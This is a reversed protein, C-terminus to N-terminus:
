NASRNANAGRVQPRKAAPAGKAGRENAEKCLSVIEVPERALPYFSSSHRPTEIAGVSQRYRPYRSANTRCKRAM